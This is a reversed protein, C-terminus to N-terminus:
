SNEDMEKLKMYVETAKEKVQLETFYVNKFRFDSEYPSFRNTITSLESMLRHEIDNLLSYDMEHDFIRSFEGSFTETSYGGHYYERLLFLLQEKDSM